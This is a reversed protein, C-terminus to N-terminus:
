THRSSKSGLRNEAHQITRYITSNSIKEAKFHLFTFNKGRSQNELYFKYVHEQLAKQKSKAYRTM